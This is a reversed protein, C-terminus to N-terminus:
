VISHRWNQSGIFRLYNFHFFFCTIEIFKLAVFQRNGSPNPRKCCSVTTRYKMLERVGKLTEKLHYRVLWLYDLVCDMSQDGYFKATSVFNDRILVNNTEEIESKLQSYEIESNGNISCGLNDINFDRPDRFFPLDLVREERSYKAESKYRDIKEEVDIFKFRNMLYPHFDNRVHIKLRCSKDIADPFHLHDIVRVLAASLPSILIKITLAGEPILHFMTNIDTIKEIISYLNYYSTNAMRELAEKAAEDTEYESKLTKVDKVISVLKERIFDLASKVIFRDEEIIYSLSDNWIFAVIADYGLLIEDAWIYQLSALFKCVDNPKKDMVSFEKIQRSTDYFLITFTTNRFPTFSPDDSHVSSAHTETLIEDSECHCLGIIAFILAIHCTVKVEMSTPRLKVLFERVEFHSVKSSFVKISQVRPNQIDENNSAYPVFLDIHVTSMM